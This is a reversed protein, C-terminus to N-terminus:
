NLHGDHLYLLGFPLLAIQAVQGPHWPRHDMVKRLGDASSADIIFPRVPYLDHQFGGALHLPGVTKLLLTGAVGGLTVPRGAVFVLVSLHHSRGTPLLSGGMMRVRVTQVM